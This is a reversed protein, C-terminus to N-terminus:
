RKRRQRHDRQVRSPPALFPQFQCRLFHSRRYPLHFDKRFIFRGIVRRHRFPEREKTFRHSVARSSIVCPFPRIAHIRFSIQRFPDAHISPLGRETEPFVTERSRSFFIIYKQGGVIPFVPPHNRHGHVRPTDTYPFYFIPKITSHFHILSIQYMM